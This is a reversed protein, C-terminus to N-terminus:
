ADRGMFRDIIEHIDSTDRQEPTLGLPEDASGAPAQYATGTAEEEQVYVTVTIAMPTGVEADVTVSRIHGAPMGYQRELYRMAPVIEAETGDKVIKIAM